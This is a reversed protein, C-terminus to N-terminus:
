RGQVGEAIVNLLDHETKVEYIDKTSVTVGFRDALAQYKPLREAFLRPFVWRTFDDPPLDDADEIDFVQMYEKVWAKFHSPPYFLPKPYDQARELVAREEEKGAKIYVFLTSRGLAEILKDDEIECLSGTSDNVFREHAEALEPVRALAACEGEYYLRQRRLFEDMPLDGPKSIYRSLASIDDASVPADLEGALYKTGIELDCSHAYWGWGSMLSSLYSKGVGSMGMLTIAKRPANLFDTASNYIM